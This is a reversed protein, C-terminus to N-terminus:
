STWVQTAQPDEKLPNGRNANLFHDSADMSGNILRIIPRSTPGNAHQISPSSSPGVRISQCPEKQIKASVRKIDSICDAIRRADRFMCSFLAQQYSAATYFTLICIALLSSALGINRFTAGIYIEGLLLAATTLWIGSRVLTANGYSMLGKVTERTPSVYKWFNPKVPWTELSSRAFKAAAGCERKWQAHSEDLERTKKEIDAPEVAGLSSEREWADLQAALMPYSEIAEIATKDRRRLRWITALAVVLLSTMILPGAHSEVRPANEGGLVIGSSGINALIGAIIACSPLVFWNELVSRDEKWNSGLSIESKPPISRDFIYIALGSGAYILALTLPITIAAILVVEM